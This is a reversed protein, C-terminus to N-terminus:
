NLQIGRGLYYEIIKIKFYYDYRAILLNNEATDFRNRANIYELNTLAGLESKRNANALAIKAAQLTAEAAELSKRAAKAATLANEINTKLTQKTKDAEIASNIVNIKAKEVSAKNAYNNFIPISLTAGFGYGVNNDLQTAYPISRYGNPFQTEYELQAPLGNIFVGEQPVRIVSYSTVEKDLDSWNTGIEGGVSLSPILQARAIDVGYESAKERLEAAHIQPQTTLSAQYVSEFLQNELPELGDLSIEPREIELPYDPEMWMQQKLSLMNIEIDNQAAILSQEDVAVQAVLDFRDNEPRAGEKILKDLNDLQDKSLQVRDQAIEVNEYSFLVNLYALAVNLALDNQAQALDEEAAEVYVNNQRISNRLRFGNFVMLGSNAGVSQYFSNETEFDNTAPNIVRGFSVGANTSANLSPLHSMRLEKGTIDYGEKNLKYQKILLSKDLAERICRELNWKEQASVASFFLLFTCLSLFTRIM